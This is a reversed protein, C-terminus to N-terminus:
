EFDLRGFVLRRRALKGFALGACPFGVQRPNLAAAEEAEAAAKAKAAAAKAATAEEAAAKAATAGEAAAKAATAGEATAAVAEEAAAKVEAEAASNEGNHASSTATRSSESSHTVTDWDEGSRLLRITQEPPGTVPLPMSQVLKLKLAERSDFRAARAKLFPVSGPGQEGEPPQEEGQRDQRQREQLWQNILSNCGTSITRCFAPWAVGAYSALDSKARLDLGNRSDVGSDLRLVESTAKRLKSESLNIVKPELQPRSPTNYFERVVTASGETKARTLLQKTWDAAKNSDNSVKTLAAAMMTAVAGVYPESKSAATLWRPGAVPREPQTFARYLVSTLHSKLAKQEERDLESLAPLPETNARVFGVPTDRDTSILCPEESRTSRLFSPKGPGGPVLGLGAAWSGSFTTVLRGEKERKRPKTKSFERRHPSSKLLEDIGKVRSENPGALLCATVQNLATTVKAFMPIRDEEDPGGYYVLLEWVETETDIEQHCMEEIAPPFAAGYSEQADHLTQLRKRRGTLLQSIAGANERYDCFAAYRKRRISNWLETAAIVVGDVDEQTNCNDLWEVLEVNLTEHQRQFTKLVDVVEEHLKLRRVLEEEQAHCLQLYDVFESWDRQGGPLVGGPQVTEREVLQGGEGDKRYSCLKQGPRLSAVLGTEFESSGSM